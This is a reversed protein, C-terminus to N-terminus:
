SPKPWSATEAPGAHAIAALVAEADQVAVEGRVDDAADLGGADEGLVHAALAADGAAAVAVDVEAVAGFPQTPITEISGSM